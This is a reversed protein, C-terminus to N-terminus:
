KLAAGDLPTANKVIAASGAQIAAPAAILGRRVLPGDADWLAAYQAIFRRLGPIAALHAKKVYIYLPRAGPYSGDAIADYTPAIGSLPVGDVSGKNEELYSYGFM